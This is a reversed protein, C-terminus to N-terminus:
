TKRDDRLEKIAAELDTIRAKLKENESPEAFVAKEAEIIERPLEDVVIDRYEKPVRHDLFSEYGGAFLRYKM